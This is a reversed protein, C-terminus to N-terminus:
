DEKKVKHNPTHSNYSEIAAALNKRAAEFQEIRYKIFAVEDTAQLTKAAQEMPWHSIYAGDVRFKMWNISNALLQKPTVTAM